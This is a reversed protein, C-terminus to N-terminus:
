GCRPATRAPDAPACTTSGPWCRRPSSCGAGCRGGARGPSGTSRARRAIFSCGDGAGIGIDDDEAGAASGYGEDGCELGLRPRVSGSWSCQVQDVDGLGAEIVRAVDGFTIWTRQADVEMGAGSGDAERVQRVQWGAREDDVCGAEAFVLGSSWEFEGGWPRMLCM